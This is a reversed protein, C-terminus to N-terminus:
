NLDVRFFITSGQSKTYYRHHYYYIIDRCLTSDYVHRLKLPFWIEVQQYLKQGCEGSGSSSFIPLNNWIFHSFPNLGPKMLTPHLNLSFTYRHLTQAKSDLFQNWNRAGESSLQTVNSLNNLRESSGWRHFMSRELNSQGQVTCLINVM